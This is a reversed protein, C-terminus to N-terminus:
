TISSFDEESLLRGANFLVNFNCISSNLDLSDLSGKGTGALTPYGTCGGSGTGGGVAGAGM